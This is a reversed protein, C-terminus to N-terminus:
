FLIKISILAKSFYWNLFVITKIFNKERSNKM